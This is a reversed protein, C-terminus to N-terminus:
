VCMTPTSVLPAPSTPPAAMNARTSWASIPRSNAPLKTAFGCARISIRCAAAPAAGRIAVQQLLENRDAASPGPAPYCVSRLQRRDTRGSPWPQQHLCPRWARLFLACARRRRVRGLRTGAQQRFRLSWRGPSQLLALDRAFLAGAGRHRRTHRHAYGSQRRKHVLRPQYQRWVLRRRGLSLHHHRQRHTDRESQSDCLGLMPNNNMANPWGPQTPQQQASAAMPLLSFVLAVAFAKIHSRGSMGGGGLHVHGSGHSLAPPLSLGLPRDRHCQRLLASDGGAQRQDHAQAAQPAGQPQGTETFMGHLHIPHEMMTDNILTVRIRQGYPFRVPQSQNYTLGNFGFIYREMNGTLHLLVEADPDRTVFEANQPGHALRVLHAYTLVDRGNGNLGDGPLNLRETPHAVINVVAPGLELHM